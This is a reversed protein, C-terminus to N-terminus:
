YMGDIFVVVILIFTSIHQNIHHFVIAFSIHNSPVEMNINMILHGLKFTGFFILFIIKLINLFTELLLIGLFCIEYIM